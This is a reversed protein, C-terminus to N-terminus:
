GNYKAGKRINELAWLPQLNTYHFCIKQQELDTLNFSACPRKHDIHWEGHNQWSMGTKFQSELWGKLFEITCGLLSTMSVSKKVGSHKLAIRIRTRLRDAIVQRSYSKRIFRRNANVQEKNRSYRELSTKRGQESSSHKKCVAKRKEPNAKAWAKAKAIYKAKNALYHKRKYEPDAYPM